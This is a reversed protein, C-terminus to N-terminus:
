TGSVDDDTGVVAVTSTLWASALTRKSVFM